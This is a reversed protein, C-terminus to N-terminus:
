LPKHYLGYRRTWHHAWAMNASHNGERVLAAIGGAYRSLGRAYTGYTLANAIGRSRHERAVGLTKLIQLVPGRAALLPFHEAFSLKGSDVRAAGAGQVLLPGYHPYVIFVGAISGDPAFGITSADPDFRRAFDAGCLADFAPRSIPTYAFNGSFIQDVLPFLRDAEALWLAPTLTEIRYGAALAADHSPREHAMTRARADADVIGSMYRRVLGLGLAELRAPTGARTWPEGHFPLAGPEAELLVRYRLATAFDIPGYLASAGQARAWAEIADLVARDAAADGIGEFYGFFAAQAGEVPQPGFCGAMRARGPVCATLARGVRFWPNQASFAAAVEAPVEPVWSPDDGWSLPAVELFGDVVGGGPGGARTDAKM